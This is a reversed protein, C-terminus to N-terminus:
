HEVDEDGEVLLIAIGYENSLFRAQSKLEGIIDAIASHREVENDESNELLYIISDVSADLGQCWKNVIAQIPTMKDSM